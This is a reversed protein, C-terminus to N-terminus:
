MKARRGASSCLFSVDDLLRQQKATKKGRGYITSYALHSKQLFDAAPQFQQLQLLSVGARYAAEAARLSTPGLQQELHSYVEQYLPAAEVFRSGEMLFDALLGKSEMLASHEKSGATKTDAGLVNCAARRLQVVARHRAESEALWQPHMPDHKWQAMVLLAAALSQNLSTCRPDAADYVAERIELARRLLREAERPREMSLYLQGLAATEGVSCPHDEGGTLRYSALARLHLAEAASWDKRESALRALRSVTRATSMHHQGLAREQYILAQKYILEADERRGQCYRLLALVRLSQQMAPHAEDLVGQSEKYLKSCIKDADSLRNQEKYIIALRNAIGLTLASGLLEHVQYYELIRRFYYESDKLLEQVHCVIGLGELTPLLMRHEKGVHSELGKLASRYCDAAEKYRKLFFYVSALDSLSQYVLIHEHGHAVKYGNWTKFLLEEAEKLYNCDRLLNGLKSFIDLTFPHQTGKINIASTLQNRLFSIEATKNDYKNTTTDENLIAATENFIDDGDSINKSDDSRDEYEDSQKENSGSEM